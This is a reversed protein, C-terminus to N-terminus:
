DMAFLITFAAYSIASAHFVDIALLGFENGLATIRM